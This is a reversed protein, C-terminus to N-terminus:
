YEPPWEGDMPPWGNWGRAQIEDGWQNFNDEWGSTAARSIVQHINVSMWDGAVWRRYGSSRLPDNVDVYDWQKLGNAATTYNGAHVVVAHSNNEIIAIVPVGNNVSTIQRSMYQAILVDPNGIGGYDDVYADYGSSTYRRAGDAIQERSCGSTRWPCGMLDGLQQPTYYSLGNFVRWMLVSTPGCLFIDPQHYHPVGLNLNGYSGGGGITIKCGGITVLGLLLYTVLSLAIAGPRRRTKM